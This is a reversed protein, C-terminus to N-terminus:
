TKRSNIFKSVPQIRRTRFKMQVSSTKGCVRFYCNKNQNFEPTIGEEVIDSMKCSSSLIRTSPHDMILVKWEGEKKMSHLVVSL